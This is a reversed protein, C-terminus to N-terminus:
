KAVRNVETCPPCKEIAIAYVKEGYYMFGWNGRVHSWAHLMLAFACTSPEVLLNDGNVDVDVPTQGNGNDYTVEGVGLLNRSASTGKTYELRWRHVRGNEQEAHVHFKLKPTPLTQLDSLKIVGCENTAPTTLQFTLPKNDIHIKLDLHDTRIPVPDPDTATGNGGHDPFQVAAMKNGSDDFMEMRLIYTGEDGEFQSTEWIGLVIGGPTSWWPYLTIWWHATDQVEYLGAVPTGGPQPGLLYSEFTGLPTARLASLPTRIPIFASDPPTTGSPTMKAYSLRYYRKPSDTKLNLSFDGRIYLSGGYAANGTPPAAYMGDAQNIMWVPDSGIQSISAQSDELGSDPICGPGCIVDEDDLYPNIDANTENWRTSTYPDM